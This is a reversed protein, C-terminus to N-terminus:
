LMIRVGIDKSVLSKFVEGDGPSGAGGGYHLPVAIKPKMENIFKAAEKADMTFHGGIPIMAIDAGLNVNEKLGDTDGAVYIKEGGIELLYGVWKKSKQHFPKLLNYAPVALAKIGSIEIEEGPSVPIVKLVSFENELTKLMTKPCVIVTSERCVKQLDEKSYHDFHEHTIFVLDSDHPEDAIKFPDLRVIKGCDIRVSSQANVSIKDIINM